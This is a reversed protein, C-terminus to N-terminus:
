AMDIGDEVLDVRRETAVTDKDSSHNQPVTGPKYITRGVKPAISVKFTFITREVEPPYTYGSISFAPVIIMM